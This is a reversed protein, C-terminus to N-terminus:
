EENRMRDIADDIIKDILEDDEHAKGPDFPGYFVTSKKGCYPCTDGSVIDFVDWLKGWKFVTGSYAGTVPGYSNKCGDSYMGCGMSESRYLQKKNMSDGEAQAAKRLDPM